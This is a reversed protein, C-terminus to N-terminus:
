KTFDILFAFSYLTNFQSNVIKWGGGLSISGYHTQCAKFNYYYWVFFHLQRIKLSKHIKFRISQSGRPRHAFAKSWWFAHFGWEEFPYYVSTETSTIWQITFHWQRSFLVTYQFKIEGSEWKSPFFSVNKHWLFSFFFLCSNSIQQPAQFTTKTLHM